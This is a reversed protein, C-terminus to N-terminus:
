ELRFGESISSKFKFTQRKSVPLSIKEYKILFAINLPIKSDISGIIHNKLQVNNHIIWM